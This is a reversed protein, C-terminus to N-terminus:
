VGEERRVECGGILSGIKRKKKKSFLGLTLGNRKWFIPKYLGFECTDELQSEVLSLRPQYPALKNGVNPLPGDGIPISTGVKLPHMPGTSSSRRTLMCQAALPRM